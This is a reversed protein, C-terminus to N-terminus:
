SQAPVHEEIPGSNRLTLFNKTKESTYSFGAPVKKARHYRIFEDLDWNPIQPLIVYHEQIMPRSLIRIQIMEEHIKEGPRIGM